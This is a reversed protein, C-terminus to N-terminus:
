LKCNRRKFVNPYVGFWRSKTEIFGTCKPMSCKKGKETLHKAATTHPLAPLCHERPGKPVFPQRFIFPVLSLPRFIGELGIFIKM